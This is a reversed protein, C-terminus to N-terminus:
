GATWRLYDPNAAFCQECLKILLAAGFGPIIFIDTLKVIQQLLGVKSLSPQLFVLLNSTCLKIFADASFNSRNGRIDIHSLDM